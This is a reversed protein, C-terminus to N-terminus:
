KKNDQKKREVIERSVAVFGTPKGDADKMLTISVDINHHSGNKRIGKLHQNKQEGTKLMDKLVVSATKQDEPTILDFASKGVLDTKKDAGYMRLTADNVDLIKGKADTLVISNTATKISNPILVEEETIKRENVDSAICLAGEPVPYIRVEYLGTRGDKFVYSNTATTPRGTKTIYDVSTFASTKTVDPFIDTVEKGVIQEKPIQLLRAGADNVLVFRMQNDMVFVGDSISELLLRYRQERQRLEDEIRKRETIDELIITVGPLGDEFTTPILKVIFWYDQKNITGAMEQTIAKGNLTAKLKTNMEPNNTLPLPIDETQQGLLEEREMDVLQTFNQNAQVVKLDRDLMLIYDSSSDLMAAIPVRQSIFFVKAPGYSRMEVHGSILLVELYKAVSNRNLNIEKSIQTVTMGKPHAKLTKTIQTLQNQDM